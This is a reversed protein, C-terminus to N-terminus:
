RDLQGKIERGEKEREDDMKEIVREHERQMAGLRDKSLRRAEEVGGDAKALETRLGEVMVQLEREKVAMEKIRDAENNRETEATFARSKADRAEEEAKTLKRLMEAAEERSRDQISRIKGEFDKRDDQWQNEMMENRAEGQSVKNTLAEIVGELKERQKRVTEDKLQNLKAAEATHKARQEVFAKEM